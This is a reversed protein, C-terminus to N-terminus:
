KKPGSGLHAEVSTGGEWHGQIGIGIHGRRGGGVLSEVTRGSEQAGKTHDERMAV